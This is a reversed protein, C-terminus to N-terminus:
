LAELRQTVQDIRRLTAELDEIARELRAASNQPSGAVANAERGVAEPVSGGIRDAANGLRMALHSAAECCKELRDAAGALRPVDRPPSNPYASQQSQAHM